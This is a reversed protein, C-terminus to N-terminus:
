NNQLSYNVIYFTYYITYICYSFFLCFIPPSCIFFLILSYLIFLFM